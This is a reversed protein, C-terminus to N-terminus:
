MKRRKIQLCYKSNDINKWLPPTGSGDRFMVEFEDTKEASWNKPYNISLGLKADNFTQAIEANVESQKEQFQQSNNLSCNLSDETKNKSSFTMVAFFLGIISLVIATLRKGNM